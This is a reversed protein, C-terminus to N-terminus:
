YTFGLKTLGADVEPCSMFLNWLLSSRYNEIMCIIPGQDIALNSDAWWGETADLADYFGYEGWLRNGLVYYFQHIAKLSQEPVYPLASIAATPTIVGLDNTPSQASYGWPNDSATLGWCDSSYGIYKKPNAMCYARNILSQNVNQQWYDAYADKLNKPNLGLFSYHTFFLPGGYSEGLPLIYGYYSNGNKITGNQAYGEHYVAPVITHTTSSAAVVYTILTENYGRIPMNMFWAYDPSWHWYLVHQGRTFWDYEVGNVLVNIRNILPKENQVNTDLYQRMTLLGEVMYSTEVLDGGDDETTFPITKGTSGNIWHPWAGHFRDCTELFTLIKALRVLGDNRSIFNRHMGVILAMVGFGSGGTTVVEGSSNRERAMGCSPHAFDYFYRFTQQQILTLLEDDTILPFKPTTDLATYFSNLFGYFSFGSKSKLSSFVTFTYKTFDTLQQNNSVTVSKNDGSLAFSLPISGTLHFGSKYNSSDLADSFRIHISITKWDITTPLAPNRFDIGNITILEIKLKGPITSFSYEVGPFTEGRAGKLGTTIQLSYTAAHELPQLPTLRFTSNENSFTINCVVQSQDSKKLVVGTRVTGTDLRDNFSVTISSDVSLGTNGTQLSLIASGMKVWALHLIGAPPM